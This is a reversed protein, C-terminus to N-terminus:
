AAEVTLTLKGHWPAQQPNTHVTIEGSTFDITSERLKDGVAFPGFAKVVTCYNYTFLLFPYEDYTKWTFLQQVLHRSDM